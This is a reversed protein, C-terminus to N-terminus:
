WRYILGFNIGQIFYGSTNLTPTPQAPLVAMATGPPLLNPVRAADINPNVLDGARVVSSLGILNYGLFVKLRSTVDYGLNVTLEPLVAFRSQTWRGINAGPIALLGGAVAQTSGDPFILNQGGNIEATQFVTGFAVTVRGDLSWRGRQLTGAVGIQGGYFQNTARFNDTITGALAPIGISFDSGPIRSFTETIRLEERVDLFRFGALGDLRACADGCLYRRYNVDAGWATHMTSVTIHGVAVGPGAIVEASPGFGVNPVMITPNVNFFPRALVTNPMSVATYTGQSPSLWFLRWDFGRCENVGFWHGGGVRGGAHFTDGFSGGLLVQTDGRGVIGNFQPSSTTILAPIPMSRNWWLLLEASIWNRGLGPLRDFFTFRPAYLPDDLCPEPCAHAEPLVTPVYYYGDPIRGNPDRSETVKPPNTVPPNTGAPNMSPPNTVPGPAVPANMPPQVRVPVSTGYPVPVTPPAFTPRAPAPTNRFLGAPTVEPDAPLSSPVAGPAAPPNESVAVPKGLRAARAPPQSSSPQQAFLPPTFASLTLAFGGLLIRRM